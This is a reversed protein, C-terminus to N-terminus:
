VGKPSCVLHEKTQSAHVSDRKTVCLRPEPFPNTRWVVGPLHPHSDDRLSPRNRSPLLGRRARIAEEGSAGGLCKDTATGFDSLKAGMDSVIPRPKYFLSDLHTFLGSRNGSEVALFLRM